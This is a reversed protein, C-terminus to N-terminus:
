VAKASFSTAPRRGLSGNARVPQRPISLGSSISRALRDALYYAQVSGSDFSQELSPVCLLTVLVVLVLVIFLERDSVTRDVM